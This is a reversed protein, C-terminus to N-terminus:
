IKLRSCRTLEQEFDNIQLVITKKVDLLHTVEVASKQAHVVFDVQGTFKWKSLKSLEENRPEIL